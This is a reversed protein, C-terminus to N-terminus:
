IMSPSWQFNCIPLTFRLMRCLQYTLQFILKRHRDDDPDGFWADWRIFNLDSIPKGIKYASPNIAVPFVRTKLGSQDARQVLDQVYTVFSPDKKLQEDVLVVVGTIEADDFDIGAPVPSPAFRASRNIVSLGTGGAVDVFLNRRYHDHLARAVAEGPAFDPHWVVYIALFPKTPVATVPPKCRWGNRLRRERNNRILHNPKGNAKEILEPLLAANSAIHEWWTWVVYGSDINDQLRAPKACGGNVIPLAPLKVGILAHQRQLTADIEWDVYKRFPTMQGCLVITCSSGSVYNERIQRMVYDVDDSQIQRDLSNDKVAEYTAAFHRAFQDYYHQDGGHHYSVFVKRKTTLPINLPPYIM